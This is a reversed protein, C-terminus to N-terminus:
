LDELAAMGRKIAERDAARRAALLARRKSEAVLQEALQAEDCQGLQYWQLLEM